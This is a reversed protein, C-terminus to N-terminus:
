TRLTLAGLMKRRMEKLADESNLQNLAISYNFEYFGGLSANFNTEWYNNMVWAFQYGPSTTMGPRCLEREGFELSGLQLIPTDPMGISLGHKRSQLRFGTQVTYFDILTGPLQDIMPRMICGAKDIWLEESEGTTFPLAIYLNEPAWISEKHLVIKVDVEPVNKWLKIQVKYFEMGKCYYDLEAEIWLEGVSKIIANKLKGITREVNFGKRNRGMQGRVSNIDRNDKVPTLEYIPTFAGFEGTILEQTDQKNFWSNIGWDYDWSIRFYDTEIYTTFNEKLQGSIDSVGDTGRQYFSNVFRIPLNQHPVLELQLEQKENLLLYICYEVGGPVYRMQSPIIDGTIPEIVAAGNNLKLENWEFWGIFLRFEGKYDCSYPNILNFVPKRGFKLFTEGLEERKHRLQICAKEFASVAYGRKILSIQKVPDSWPQSMSDSHSFTHEAYLALKDYIDIDNNISDTDLIRYLEFTRQAQRYIKVGDPDSAFGDSWWDPWDGKYSPISVDSIRVRSFFDCLTIMELICIDNHQKNWRKIMKPIEASPPSNDTRLGSVMVPVFDFEYGEDELMKLYRPIRTEALKWQDYYVSHADCDDKITYSSGAREAFGLENGFHYHEGNWVLLEKGDPAIWKFPYQKRNVPWMGHHTHVCSFYNSIGHKVMSQAFGWGVGNIDATMATDIEFGYKKSTSVAREIMNDLTSEDILENFNLYGATIGINKNLVAKFFKEREPKGCEQLFKEVAWFAECNWVFTKDQKIIQLAQKIFDIHWARIQHQLETYGIDTHSHNIIYITKIRSM